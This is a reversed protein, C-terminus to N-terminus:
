KYLWGVVLPSGFGGGRGRNRLVYLEYMCIHLDVNKLRKLRRIQWRFWVRSQEMLKGDLKAPRLDEDWTVILKGDEIQDIDFQFDEEM